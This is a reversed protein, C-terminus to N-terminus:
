SAEYHLGQDPQQLTHNVSLESAAVDQYFLMSLLQNGRTEFLMAIDAIKRQFYRYAILAPIAVVMGAATTILAQSVGAALMAPDTVGGANVAMFAAIIGIVTGLLGLLPAIAGITGLFNLNKELQHILENARTQMQNESFQFGHTRNELGTALMDGLISNQKLKAIAQSNLTDARLHKNIQTMLSAPAIKDLRLRICREIIIACMAISCIVLPLMLVGGAKVLEWM